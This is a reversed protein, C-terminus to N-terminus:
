GPVRAADHGGDREVGDGAAPHVRVQGDVPFPCTLDVSLENFLNQRALARDWPLTPSGTLYCSIM